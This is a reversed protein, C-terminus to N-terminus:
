EEGEYYFTTVKVTATISDESDEDFESEEGPLSFNIADIHMIRKIKEIEKIFNVLHNFDPSEVRVEFTILKLESPLNEKAIPSVPTEESDEAETTADEGNEGEETPVNPSELQSSSVLEDYNNFHISLIKTGTVYQTEEIKLVIDDLNRTAPVKKRLEFLTAHEANKSANLEEIQQQISEIESRTSLISSELSAAEEKKPLLIYYYLAFLLAAVLAILLLTSSNKGSTLKMM